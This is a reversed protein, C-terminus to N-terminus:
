SGKNFANGSANHDGQRICTKQGLQLHQNEEKERTNRKCKFISLIDFM